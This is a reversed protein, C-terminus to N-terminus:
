GDWRRMEREGGVRGRGKRERKREEAFGGADWARSTLSLSLSLSHTRKMMRLLWAWGREWGDWGMEREERKEGRAGVARVRERERRKM